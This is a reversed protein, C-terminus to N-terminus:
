PRTDGSAVVSFVHSRRTSSGLQLQGYRLRWDYSVALNYPKGGELAAGEPAGLAGVTAETRAADNEWFSWRKETGSAIPTTITAALVTTGFPKEGIWSPARWRLTPRSSVVAGSAPALIEPLAEFHLTPVLVEAEGSRGDTYTWQIRYAGSEMAFPASASHLYFYPKGLEVGSEFYGVAAVKSALLHRDPLRVLELHSVEVGAELGGNLIAIYSPIGDNEAHQFLLRVWTMGAPIDFGTDLHGQGEALATDVLAIANARALEDTDADELVNLLERTMVRQQGAIYARHARDLGSRARDPASAGNVDATAVLTDDNRRQCACLSGLLLILLATKM